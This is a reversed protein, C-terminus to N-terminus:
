AGGEKVLEASQHLAHRTRQLPARVRKHWGYLAVIATALLAAGSVVLGAAWPPMVRSLALAATVLLLTVSVIAGVAGVGLSIASTLERKLDARAEAVALEIQKRALDKVEHGIDKLLDPTSQRVPPRPPGPVPRTRGNTVAPLPPPTKRNTGDM